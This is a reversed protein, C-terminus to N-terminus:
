TAGGRLASRDMIVVVTSTTSAVTSTNGSTMGVLNVGSLATSTVRGATASVYLTVRPSIKIAAKKVTAAGEIQYWSLASTSTNGTMSVAVPAGTFTMSTTVRTTTKARPNFVCVAGVENSAVGPLLMFEGQGNTPDQARAITGCPFQGSNLLGASAVSIIASLVPLGITQETFTYAM